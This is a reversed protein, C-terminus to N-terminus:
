RSRADDDQATSRSPDRIAGLTAETGLDRTLVSPIVNSRSTFDESLDRWKPNESEILAIKKARSWGKIKKEAEIAQTPTPFVEYYMLM